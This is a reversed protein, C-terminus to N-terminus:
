AHGTRASAASNRNTSHPVFRFATRTTHSSGSTHNASLTLRHRCTDSNATLANTHMAAIHFCV